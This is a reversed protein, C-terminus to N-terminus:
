KECFRCQFIGTSNYCDEHLIHGCELTLTTWYDDMCIPCSGRSPAKNIQVKAIPLAEQRCLPCKRSHEKLKEYCDMHLIHGCRLTQTIYYDKQCVSCCGRYAAEIAPINVFMTEFKYYLKIYNQKEESTMKQILSNDIKSLQYRVGSVVMTPIPAKSRNRITRKNLALRQNIKTKGKRLRHRRTQRLTRRVVVRRVVVRRVLIQEM